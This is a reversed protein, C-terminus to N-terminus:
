APSLASGAVVKYMTFGIMPLQPREYGIVAGGYIALPTLTPNVSAEALSKVNPAVLGGQTEDVELAVCDQFNEASIPLLHVRVTTLNRVVRGSLIFREADRRRLCQGVPTERIPVCV